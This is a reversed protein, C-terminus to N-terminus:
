IGTVRLSSISSEILPRYDRSNYLRDFQALELKFERGKSEGILTVCTIPVPLDKYSFRQDIRKARMGAWTVPRTSVGLVHGGESRVRSRFNDTVEQALSELTTGPPMSKISMGGRVDNNFVYIYDPSDATDSLWDNSFKLNFGDQWNHHDVFTARASRAQGYTKGQNAFAKWCDHEYPDDIYATIYTEESAQAYFPTLLALLAIALVGARFSRSSCRTVLEKATIM